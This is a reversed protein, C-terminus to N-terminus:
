FELLSCRAFPVLLLIQLCFKPRPCILADEVNLTLFHPALDIKCSLCQKLLDNEANQEM